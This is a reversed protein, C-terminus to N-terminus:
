LVDKLSDTEGQPCGCPSRFGDALASVGAAQLGSESLEVTLSAVFATTPGGELFSAGNVSM